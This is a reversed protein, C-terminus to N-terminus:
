KSIISTVHRLEYADTCQSLVVQTYVVAIYILKVIHGKEFVFVLYIDEDLCIFDAQHFVSM